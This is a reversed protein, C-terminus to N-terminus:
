QKNWDFVEGTRATFAPLAATSPGPPTVTSMSLQTPTATSFLTDRPSPPLQIHFASCATLSRWALLGLVKYFLM